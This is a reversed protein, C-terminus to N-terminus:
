DKRDKKTVIKEKGHGFRKVTRLMIHEIRQEINKLIKQVDGKLLKIITIGEDKRERKKRQGLSLIMLMDTGKDHM